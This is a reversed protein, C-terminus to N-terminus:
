VRCAYGVPRRQEGDRLHSFNNLPLSNHTLLTNAIHAECCGIYDEYWGTVCTRGYAISCHLGLHAKSTVVGQAPVLFNVHALKKQRDVRSLFKM